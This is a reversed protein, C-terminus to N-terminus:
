YIIKKKQSEKMAEIDLFDEIMRLHFKKENHKKKRKQRQARISCKSNIKSHMM